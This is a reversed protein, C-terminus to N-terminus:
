VDFPEAGGRTKTTGPSSVPAAGVVYTVSFLLRLIRPTAIQVPPEVSRLKSFTRIGFALRKAAITYNNNLAGAAPHLGLQPRARRLLIAADPRPPPLQDLM